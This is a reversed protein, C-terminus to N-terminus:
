AAARLAKCAQGAAWAQFDTTDFQNTFSDAARLAVNAYESLTPDIGLFASRYGMLEGLVILSCQHDGNMWFSVYRHFACQIGQKVLAQEVLHMM